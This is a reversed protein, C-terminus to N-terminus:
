YSNEVKSYIQAKNAEYIATFADKTFVGNSISLDVISDIKSALDIFSSLIESIVHDNEESYVTLENGLQEVKDELEDIKQLM